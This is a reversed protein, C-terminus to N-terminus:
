TSAPTRDHARAADKGTLVETEIDVDEEGSSVAGFARRFRQTVVDPGAPRSPDLAVVPEGERLMNKVATFTHGDCVTHSLSVVVAFAGESAGPGPGAGADGGTDGGADGGAAEPVVTVSVIPVNKNVLKSGECVELATGNIARHLEGYTCGYRLLASPEALHVLAKSTQEGDVVPPFFLQPRKMGKVKILHAALWPNQALVLGMRARLAKHAGTPDGRYFAVTTVGAPPRPRCGAPTLRGDFVGGGGPRHALPSPCHALPGHRPRPRWVARGSLLFGSCRSKTVTLPNM